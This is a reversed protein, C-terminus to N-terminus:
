ENLYFQVYGGGKFTLMDGVEVTGGNANVIYGPVMDVIEYEGNPVGYYLINQYTVSGGLWFTYGTEENCLQIGGGRFEPISFVVVRSYGEPYVYDPYTTPGILHQQAQLDNAFADSIALSVAILLTLLYKM